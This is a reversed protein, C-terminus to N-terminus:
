NHNQTNSELHVTDTTLDVYVQPNVVYDRDHRMLLHVVRHGFLPEGPVAYQIPRADFHTPMLDLMPKLRPDASALRIAQEVEIPALATPYHDLIERKLIQRSHLDIMTLITRDGSYQYHHVMVLRQNTEAQSDPLLDVKIFLTKFSAPHEALHWDKEALDRALGIEAQSLIFPYPIPGPQDGSAQGCGVPALAMLGIVSRLLKQWM